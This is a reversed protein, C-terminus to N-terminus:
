KFAAMVLGYGGGCSTGSYAGATGAAKRMTVFDQVNAVTQMTTFGSSCATSTNSDMSVLLLDGTQTTTVPGATTTGSTDLVADVPATTSARSWETLEIFAGGTITVTVTCAGGSINKAYWIETGLGFSGMGAIAKTYTNSCGSMASVTNGNADNSIIVTILNGATTNSNFALSTSSHASLVDQIPITNITQATTVMGGFYMANQSFCLSSAILFLPVKIM